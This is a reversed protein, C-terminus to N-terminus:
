RRASIPPARRDLKEIGQCGRDKSCDCTLHAIRDQEEALAGVDRTKAKETMRTAASSLSATRPTTETGTQELAPTALVHFGQHEQQQQQRQGQKRPKEEDAPVESVINGEQTSEPPSVQAATPNGDQERAVTDILPIVSAASVAAIPAALPEVAPSGARTPTPASSAQNVGDDDINSDDFADDEDEDEDEYISDSEENDNSLLPVILPPM